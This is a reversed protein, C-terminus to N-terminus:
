HFWPSILTNPTSNKLVMKMFGSMYQCPIAFFPRTQNWIGWLSWCYNSVIVHRGKRTMRYYNNGRVPDRWRAHTEWFVRFSRPGSSPRSKLQKAGNECIWVYIIVSCSQIVRFPRCTMTEFQQQDKHPMQFWVLDNKAIRYWYNNGRFMVSHGPFASMDDNQIVTSRQLANPILSAWKWIM